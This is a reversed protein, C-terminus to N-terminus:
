HQGGSSVRAQRNHEETERYRKLRLQLALRLTERNNLRTGVPLNLSGWDLEEFSESEGSAELRRRRREQLLDAARQSALDVQPLRREELRRLRRM